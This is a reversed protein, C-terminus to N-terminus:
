RPKMKLLIGHKPKLTVLPQMEIKQDPVLSFDFRRVLLCLLIQMEMMAFHNGICMRAGAGFPMYAHRPIKNEPSFREPNFEDPHEWYKPSRQLAYFSLYVSSDSPIKAGDVIDDEIAQRSVVYAPPYLRMGEDLVQRSYPLQSFDEMVPLRGNLVRREEERLKEVVEPKQAMLFLTWSLANASTEHGALYITILEDRLQQDSMGEGTDEYKANLLMSLLDVHDAPNEKRDKIMRFIMEDFAQKNRIFKKHTGTLKDIQRQFPMYARKLIVEQSFGVAEYMQEKDFGYASSFLTGMVVDATVQMMESAINITDEGEVRQALELYYEDVVKVMGSILNKLNSKYFVPQSIKRQKKWLDGESTVLGEGLFEKLTQYAISKKYNRANSQLVHKIVSPRFIVFLDRRPVRIKYFDGLEAEKKHVFDPTNALFDTAIGLLNKGKYLRLKTLEQEAGM